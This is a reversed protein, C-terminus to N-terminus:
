RVEPYRARLDAMLSRLGAEDANPPGMPIARKRITELFPDAIPVSEIEDCAREDTGNLFGDFLSSVEQPTRAAPRAFLGGILAPPVAVPILLIATWGLWSKIGRAEEMSWKYGVAATQDFTPEGDM